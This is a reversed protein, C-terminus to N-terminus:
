RDLGVDAVQEGLQVHAIAGLEHCQCVTTLAERRRRHGLPSRSLVPLAGADVFEKESMPGEQPRHPEREESASPPRRVVGAAGRGDPDEGAPDGHGEDDTAAEPKEYRSPARYGALATREAVVRADRAHTM